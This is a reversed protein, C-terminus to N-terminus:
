NEVFLESSQIRMDIEKIQVRRGAGQVTFSSTHKVRLPHCERAMVYLEIIELNVGEKLAVGWWETM